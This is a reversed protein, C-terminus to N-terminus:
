SHFARPVKEFSDEKDRYDDSQNEPYDDVRKEGLIPDQSANLPVSFSPHGINKWKSAFLSFKPLGKGETVYICSLMDLFISKSTYSFVLFTLLSLSLRLNKTSNQYKLQNEM